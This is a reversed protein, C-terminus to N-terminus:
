RAAFKRFAAIEARLRAVAAVLQVPLPGKRIVVVAAQARELLESLAAVATAIRRGDADARELASVVPLDALAEIRAGLRKIERFARWAQAGALVLIVALAVAITWWILAHLSM